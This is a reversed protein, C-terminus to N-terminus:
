GAKLSELLTEADKREDFENKESLIRVLIDMAEAKKGSQALAAAFHYQVEASKPLAEASKSLIELGEKLKNDKVLLWGYTDQIEPAGPALEYATRVLDLGRPDGKRSYLWGLNNLIVPRGPLKENLAENEAIAAETDGRRILETSFVLRTEWDDQNKSVWDQLNKFAEDQMGASVKALYLRRFVASNPRLEQSKEFATVADAFKSARLYVDGLMLHSMPNEPLEDRYRTALKLAADVGSDELEASIREARAEPMNPALNIAEDFATKAEAYNKNLMLARGLLVHSMPVKPAVTVLKRYSSIGSATQKNLLQMQALANIAMPLNPAIQSLETATQLAAEPKNLRVQVEILRVRATDSNPNGAVAQQLWGLAGELDNESASLDALQTLVRENNKDNALFDKLLSRAKEPQNEIRELQALNLIAPSFAPDAKAATELSARAETRKNQALYVSGLLNHAMASNERSKVFNKAAIEAKDYEKKRMHSLVLVLNVRESGGENEVLAELERIAEDQEGLGLSTIALQERIKSDEPNMKQLTKFIRSAAPYDSVALYSNGLMQLYMTDSKYGDEEEHPKLIKLADPYRKQRLYVASLLKVAEPRNENAAHYREAYSVAGELRNLKLNLNALLYVAPMYGALRFEVPQITELAKENEGRQSLLASKLYLAMPMGQARKLVEDVDAEAEEFRNLGLLVFARGILVQLSNKDAELALNYAELSGPLDKQARRLEGKLWLALSFKPNIAIARDIAKEAAVYDGMRQLVEADAAHFPADSASDPRALNLEERAMPINNDALYARARLTHATVKNGGKLSDTTIEALLEKSKGQILMAQGLLQLVKEDAMGRNRSERFEKEAGAADGRRINFQGLLFRAEVNDPDARVANKLHIIAENNDGAKIAEQAEKFYETSEENAALAPSFLGLIAMGAILMMLLGFYRLQFGDITSAPAMVPTRRSTALRSFSMPMAIGDNGFHLLIHLGSINVAQKM